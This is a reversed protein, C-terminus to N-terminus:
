FIKWMSQDDDDEEGQGGPIVPIPTGNSPIPSALGNYINVPDVNRCTNPPPVVTNIATIDTPNDGNHLLSSVREESQYHVSM